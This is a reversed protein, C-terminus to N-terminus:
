GVGGGMGTTSKWNDKFNAKSKGRKDRTMIELGTDEKKKWFSRIALPGLFPLIWIFRKHLKRREEKFYDAKNIKQTVLLNLCVYALVAVILLIFFEPTM